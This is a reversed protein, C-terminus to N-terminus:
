KGKIFEIHEQSFGVKKLRTEVQKDTLGQKRWKATLLQGMERIEDPLLLWCNEGKAYYDSPFQTHPKQFITATVIEKAGRMECYQKATKLSGGTENIDDFILIREGEINTAVSQSIVPMASREGVGTYFSIQITSHRPIQLLDKLARSMTLGGTALAIIRDFKKEHPLIKGALEYIYQGMEGWDIFRYSMGHDKPFKVAEM